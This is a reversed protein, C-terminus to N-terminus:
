SMESPKAAESMDQQSPKLPPHTNPKISPRRQQDVSMRRKMAELRELETAESSQASEQNM